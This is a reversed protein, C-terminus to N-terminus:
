RTATHEHRELAQELAGLQEECEATVVRKRGLSLALSRVNSNRRSLSVIESNVSMFRDLAEAAAALHPRGRSGVLAGLESVAARAERAHAAMREELATMAADESEAIHPAQLVEIELVAAVARAALAEARWAERTPTEARAADLSAGFASAAERASGFSLRQAKLNTNEVALGLIEDDLRAYERYRAAFADLLGLDERYRLSQLLSRLARVDGEVVRRDRRAEAAAEGSTADTEAMVSRNAADSARTFAVHLESAVRRAELLRTFAAPLEACASVAATALLGSLLGRVARSGPSCHFM